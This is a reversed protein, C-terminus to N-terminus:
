TTVKTKKKIEELIESDKDVHMHKLPLIYISFFIYIDMLIQLAVMHVM